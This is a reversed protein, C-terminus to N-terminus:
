TLDGAEIKDFLPAPAPLATGPQLPTRAWAQDDLSGAQGLLEHLRASSFPLYPSFGTKLGNIASLSVFLSTATQEPDTQATKWPARENLYGNVEQAGEM